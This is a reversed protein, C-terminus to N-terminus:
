QDPFRNVVRKIGDKLTSAGFNLLLGVRYDGLMVYTHLQRSHISALAELAKVEVVVSREVVLDVRYACDIRVGRYVVPVPKQTEVRIGNSTLKHIL